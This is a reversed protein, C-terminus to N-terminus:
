HGTTAGKGRFPTAEGPRPIAKGLGQAGGVPRGLPLWFVSFGYAMGICLHICLAAPPVLWRNFGARAVIRERDLLGPAVSGGSAVNIATMTKEGTRRKSTERCQRDGLS